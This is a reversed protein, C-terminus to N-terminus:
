LTQFWLYSLGSVCSVMRGPKIGAGDPLDVSLLYREALMGAVVRAFCCLPLRMRMAQGARRPLLRLHSLPSLNKVRDPQEATGNAQSMLLPIRPGGTLWAM